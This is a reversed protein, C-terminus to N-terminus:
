LHVTLVHLGEHLVHSTLASHNISWHTETSRKGWKRDEPCVDEVTFEGRLTVNIALRLTLLLTHELLMIM